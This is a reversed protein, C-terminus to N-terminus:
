ARSSSMSLTERNMLGRRLLRQGEGGSLPSPGDAISTAEPGLVKFNDRLRTGIPSDAASAVIALVGKYTMGLIFNRGIPHVRLPKFM